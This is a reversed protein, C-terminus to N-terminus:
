AHWKLELCLLINGVITEATVRTMHDPAKFMETLPMTPHPFPMHYNETFEDKGPGWRAGSAIPQGAANYWVWHEIPSAM